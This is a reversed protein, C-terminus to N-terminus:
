QGPPVYTVAKRSAADVEEPTMLVTTKVRVAGSAGAALVAAAYSAHDPAEVIAVVDQDGFAFHFAELKGGSERILSEVVERRRSGGDKLLGQLGQATYSGQILYKAM